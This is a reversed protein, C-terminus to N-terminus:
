ASTQLVEYVPEVGTRAEMGGVVGEPPNVLAALRDCSWDVVASRLWGVHNPIGVQRGREQVAKLAIPM